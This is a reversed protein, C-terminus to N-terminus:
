IVRHLCSEKWMSRNIPRCKCPSTAQAHRRSPHGARRPWLRRVLCLLQAWLRATEMLKKRNPATQRCGTPRAEGQAATESNRHSQLSLCLPDACSSTLTTCENCGGPAEAQARRWMHPTRLAKSGRSAMAHWSAAHAEELNTNAHRYSKPLCLALLPDQSVGPHAGGQSHVRAHGVRRRKRNRHCLELAPKVNRYPTSGCWQSLANPPIPAHAECTSNGRMKSACRRDRGHNRFKSANPLPSLPDRVVRADQGDSRPLRHHNARPAYM